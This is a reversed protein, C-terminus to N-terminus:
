EKTAPGTEDSKDGQPPMEATLAEWRAVFDPGLLTEKEILVGCLARIPADYETILKRAREECEAVIGQIESDIADALKPGVQMAVPTQSDALYIRGLKSMGFQTVMLKAMNNAQQFDSSAGTDITNMFIEQAIRGAMASSIRKLMQEKTMNWRDSETHTQVYGLARGRPLITIKTIPDGKLVLTVVAHGLEHFATQQKDAMTMAQLRDKRAEGAEVISIAEDLMDTTILTVPGPAPKAVIMYQPPPTPSTGNPTVPSDLPGNKKAEEAAKADAVAKAAKDLVSQKRAAIVAAENCAAEIDAGSFGFTRRAILAFDVTTDLKKKRSHVKFIAERGSVDPLDVFVEIDFRGKRKLAADLMDSRNTAAVVIIGENEKFGDMETLLQNLTQERESNSSTGNGRAGGVADIEDIFILVPKKTRQRQRRADEFLTRVRSAGVGVYMEVFSSGTTIYMSADAEGALARALLTKGTGPPGVLLIGRPLQADHRNYVEPEKLWECVERLRSIAEPQGAVDAFTNKGPADPPILQAPNKSNGGGTTSNFDSRYDSDYRSDPNGDGNRRNRMEQSYYDDDSRGLSGADRADQKAQNNKLHRRLAYIAVALGLVVLIMMMTPQKAASWVEQTSPSLNTIQSPSPGVTLGPGPSVTQNPPLAQALETTVQASDPKGSAAASNIPSLSLSLFATTAFAVAIISRYITIM